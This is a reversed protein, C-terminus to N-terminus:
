SLLEKLKEVSLVVGVSKVEGDIVLGPTMMVGFKMIEQIDKVKEIRYEIGLESAAEEARKALTECKSCGPGLICINKM